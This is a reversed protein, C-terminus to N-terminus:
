RPTTPKLGRLRKWGRLTPCPSILFKSLGALNYGLFKRYPTIIQDQVVVMQGNEERFVFSIEKGGRLLIATWDKEVLVENPDDAFASLDDFVDKLDM